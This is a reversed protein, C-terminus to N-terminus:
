DGPCRAFGVFLIVSFMAIGLSLANFVSWLLRRRLQSGAYFAGGTAVTATILLAYFLATTAGNGSECDLTLVLVLM